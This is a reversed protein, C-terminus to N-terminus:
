LLRWLGRRGLERHIQHKGFFCNKAYVKAQEKSATVVLVEGVIGKVADIVHNLLPKDNLERM